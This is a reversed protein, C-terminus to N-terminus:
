RPWRNPENDAGSSQTYFMNVLGWLKIGPCLRETDSAARGTRGVASCLSELCM